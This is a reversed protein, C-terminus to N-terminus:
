GEPPDPLASRRAGADCATLLSVYQNVPNAQVAEPSGIQAIKGQEYVIIKDSIAVAEEFDHTVLLAPINFNGRVELLFQRMELRLPRDLASFPEDLLLMKPRRILARAFAGRQKQGGSIEHPYRNELGTLKFARIMDHARDLKEAKPLNAAGYLINQLVSMHPFLALDQFVYGFPREQPPLDTGTSSDFYVTDDLSVHGRDPKLLGAIMQLTMSKGAGSFGFLVALENAIQWEIDLSFGNVMKRVEVRLGM